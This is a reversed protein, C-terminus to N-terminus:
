RSIKAKTHNLRNLLADIEEAQKNLSDLNVNRNYIKYVSMLEVIALKAHTLAIRTSVFDESPVLYNLQTEM